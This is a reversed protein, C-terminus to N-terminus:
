GDAQGVFSLTTQNEDVQAMASRVKVKEKIFDLETFVTVGTNAPGIKVKLKVTLEDDMALYAENISQLEERILGEVQAVTKKITREGIKM